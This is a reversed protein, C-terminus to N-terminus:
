VADTWAGRTFTGDDSKSSTAVNANDAANRLTETTSSQTRKNRNLVGLWALWQVITSSGWAPVAAPESPVIADMGDAALKCGGLGVASAAYLQDYVAEEIVQLRVPQMVNTEDDLTVVTRGVTDADNATLALVYHGAHDHALTADGDLASPEGGNKSVLLDGIVVSTVAAGDGDLIPGVILSVATSQRIVDSM